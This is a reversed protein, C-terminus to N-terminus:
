VEGCSKIQVEDSKYKEIIANVVNMGELVMGLALYKGDFSPIEKDCISFGTEVKTNFMSVTGPQHKLIFNEKDFGNGCASKILSGNQNKLCGGAIHTTATYHFYSNAYGFGKEGTCLARFNESTKPAVDKRM